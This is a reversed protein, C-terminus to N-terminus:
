SNAIQLVAFNIVVAESLSGGSNNKGTVRCYGAQVNTGYVSYVGDSTGQQWSTVVVSTRTIKANQFTFTALSGSGLAAGNMTISGSATDLEILTSKNTAQTGTGGAATTYGNIGGSSQFGNIAQVRGDDRIFAVVADTSSARAAFQLAEGTGPGCYIRGQSSSAAAAYFHSLTLDAPM